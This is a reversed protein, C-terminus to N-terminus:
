SFNYSLNTRRVKSFLVKLKLKSLFNLSRSSISAIKLQHFFFLKTKYSHNRSMDQLIFFLNHTNEIYKLKLNIFKILLFAKDRNKNCYYYSLKILTHFFRKFIKKLVRSLITKCKVLNKLIAFASNFKRRVHIILIDRISNIGKKTKINFQKKNISFAKMSNFGSITISHRVTKTIIRFFKKYIKYYTNESKLLDFANSLSRITLLYLVKHMKEVCQLAKNRIKMVLVLKNFAFQQNMKIYKSICIIKEIGRIDMSANEFDYAHKVNSPSRMSQIDSIETSQNPSSHWKRNKCQKKDLLQREVFLSRILYFAFKKCKQLSNLSLKRLTLYLVLTRPQFYESGSCNVTESLIDEPDDSEKLISVVDAVLDQIKKQSFIQQECINSVNLATNRVFNVKSSKGEM